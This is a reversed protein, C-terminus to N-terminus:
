RHFLNSGPYMPPKPPIQWPQLSTPPPGSSPPQSAKAASPHLDPDDVCGDMSVGEVAAMLACFERKEIPKMLFSAVGLRYANAVLPLDRTETLIVKTIGQSSTKLHELVELGGMRPMKLDLLLLVPTARSKALYAVLDEGDSFVELPNHIRCQSHYRWFTFVDKSDDEALLIPNTKM